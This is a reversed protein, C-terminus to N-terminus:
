IERRLLDKIHLVRILFSSAEPQKDGVILHPFGADRVGNIKQSIGEVPFIDGNLNLDGTLVTESAPYMLKFGLAELLSNAFSLRCSVGSGIMYHLPFNLHCDFPELTINSDQLFRQIAWSCLNFSQLICDNVPGSGTM